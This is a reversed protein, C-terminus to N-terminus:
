YRALMCNGVVAEVRDAAAEPLEHEWVRIVTWGARKLLEGNDRDRQRNRALKADWYSHNTRPKV